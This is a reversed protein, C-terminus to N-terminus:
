QIATAPASDYKCTASDQWTEGAPDKFDQDMFAQLKKVETVNDLFIGYERNNSTSTTSGNVSGVWARTGDVVIAKAHLYGAIGNIKINRTFARSKIGATEFAGYTAKWKTVDGASPKGFSCASAVMVEVAVGRKAADLIAQNLTPDKLYQNQIQIKTQASALFAVMPPLSIPSVTIKKTPAQTLEDTMSYSSGKLDKEFIQTLTTVVDTDTSVVAYDRNCASPSEPKDCLSSTNFNGTSLLVQNGDAIVMKGHEFCSSGAVGCLTADKFAVYQGGGAQIYTVLDKQDKCSQSDSTTKAVFVRCSAGVPKDEKVVRVRVGRDVAGKIANIVQPDDMEYIEIDISQQANTFLSVLPSGSANEYFKETTATSAYSVSSITLLATLVLMM